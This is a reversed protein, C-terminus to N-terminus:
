WQYGVTANVVPKNHIMGVGAGYIFGRTTIRAYNVTFGSNLYYNAYVANYPKRKYITVISDRITLSQTILDGTIASHQQYLTARGFDYNRYRVTDRVTDRITKYETIYVTDIKYQTNTIVSQKQQMGCQNAFLLLLIVIIVKDM